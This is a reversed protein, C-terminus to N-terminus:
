AHFFRLCQALRNHIKAISVASKFVGLQQAPRIALNAARAATGFLVRKDLRPANPEAVSALLLKRELNARDKFIGRQSEVLPHLASVALSNYDGREFTASLNLRSDDSMALIGGHMARHTIENLGAGRNHRILEGSIGSEFRLVLTFEYVMKLLVNVPLNVNLT